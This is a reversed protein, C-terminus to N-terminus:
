RANKTRIKPALGFTVLSFLTRVFFKYTFHQHFQSYSIKIFVMKWSPCNTIKPTQWAHFPLFWQDLVQFDQRQQLVRQHRELLLLHRQGQGRQPRHLLSARRLERGWGCKWRPKMQYMKIVKLFFIIAVKGSGQSM